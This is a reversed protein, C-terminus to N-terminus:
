DHRGEQRLVVGVFLGSFLIIAAAYPAADVLMGESTRSFMTIALSRFGTPALLFAIPLEKMAIVFVLVMGSILSRRILPFTVHRLVGLPRYGLSRAAEELSPRALYLASRIPGLALALFALSYALILLIHSQYLFRATSLSLFVFALAFAIPPVAYGVFALRNILRSLPSPYRVALVAVPLALMAALIASPVAVSVSQWFARGLVPLSPLVPEASLWFALVAIPLGVAALAVLTVFGWAAVQGAPGLEVLRRAAGTGVGTRAYHTGERLRGEWWIVSVAIAVLILAIWAAYIRDYAAVYQTYLAYSFVEYRMLAVAGFDGITYLGVVLWSAFLSPRLHPLTVRTFVQRPTCGLARASEELSPDLTSLAVRLNLFVYPFTYLGLALTAGLWGEPRPLSWGFVQNMFGYHGSMGILSYAMVYGPVALPLTVLLTALGRGALATRTTLWALPGAILTTLALVGAVLAATNAMLEATRGRVVLSVVTAPDGETARLLLYFVPIIMAAGVLIAPATLIAPPARRRGGKIQATM